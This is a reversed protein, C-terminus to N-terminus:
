TPFGNGWNMPQYRLADVPGPPPGSNWIQKYWGGRVVSFKYQVHYRDGSSTGIWTVSAGDFRVWYAPFTNPGFRAPNLNITSIADAVTGGSGIPGILPDGLPNHNMITPVYIELGPQVWRWKIINEADMGTPGGDWTLVVGDPRGATWLPNGDIDTPQSYWPEVTQTFTRYTARTYSGSPPINGFVRFYDLRGWVDHPGWRRVYLRQFPLDPVFPHYLGGSANLIATIADPISLIATDGENTAKARRTGRDHRNSFVGRTLDTGDNIDFKVTIPM